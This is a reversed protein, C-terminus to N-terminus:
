CQIAIDFFVDCPGSDSELLRWIRDVEPNAVRAADGSQVSVIVLINIALDNSALAERKEWRHRHWTDVLLVQLRRCIHHTGDM